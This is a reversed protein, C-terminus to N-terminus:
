NAACVDSAPKGSSMDEICKLKQSTANNIVKEIMQPKKYTLLEFNRGNKEFKLMLKRKSEALKQQQIETQQRIQLSRETDKIFQDITQKQTEVVQKLEGNENEIQLTHNIFNRISNWGLFVIIALVGFIILNRHSSAFSLIGSIFGM